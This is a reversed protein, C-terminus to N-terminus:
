HGLDVDEDIYRMWSNIEFCGCVYKGDGKYEWGENMFMDFFEKFQCEFLIALVYGTEMDIIHYLTEDKEAETLWNYQKYGSKSKGLRPNKKYLPIVEAPDYERKEAKNYEEKTKWGAGIIRPRYVQGFRLM